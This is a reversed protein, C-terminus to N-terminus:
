ALLRFRSDTQPDTKKGIIVQGFAGAEFRSAADAATASLVKIVSPTSPSATAAKDDSNGFTSDVPDVGAGVFSSTITNSVRLSGISGPHFADQGAGTGGILGDDGLNAGSLIRANNLSAVFLRGIVGSGSAITGNVDALKARGLADTAYVTGKLNGASISAISAGSFINGTVDGITIAGASGTVHLDGLLDSTRASMSRLTGSVSVDGLAVRGGTSTIALAVGKGADNVTVRVQTGDLYANATGGTLSFTVHAGAVTATLKQGHGDVLGFSGLLTGSGGAAADAGPVLLRRLTSSTTAAVAQNTTGIVVRGDATVTGFAKLVIDGVHLSKPTIGGITGLGTASIGSDLTLLGQTGFSTIPSGTSDFAAVATKAGSSQLSTGVVLIQGRNQVVISDADDDGGFDATVLGKVGFNVNVTGNPNLRALGFNGGTTRNAVLIDGNSAIALGESRDPEGLDTRASLSAVTAMGSAGFAGDAEGSETLRVVVVSSGEAGAAVIKGDGQLAIAGLGNNGQGLGFLQRGSQAFNNDLQGGPLFRAFAFNGGSDGGVIINGGSAIAIARAVDSASGFDATATGKTGFTTDLTGTLSYRRVVFDGKSAGAVVFHKADQWAGAFYQENAALTTLIQGHSGFSTDLSGDANLQEIVGQSQSNAVNGRHGIVLTKGNAATLIAETVFAASVTSGGAFTPDQPSSVTPAAPVNVSFSGLA